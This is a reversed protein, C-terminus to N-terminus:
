TGDSKDANKLMTRLEQINGAERIALLSLRLSLLDSNYFGHNVMINFVACEVDHCKRWEIDRCQESCYMAYICYKCPITAWCIKLCNSCHTMANEQALLMSYPKEVVLVEGTDINRTAVIHRGNNKDYKLAIADSACPIEKNYSRIVPLSPESEQLKVSNSQINKQETKRRLGDLKTQLKLKNHNLEMKNIWHETEEIMSKATQDGLIILCHTKRMYLKGKLDDPYSLALARDIDQICESYLGLDFLVASRNAYALALQKSKHPALAISKTYLGLTFHCMASNFNCSAFAKNGEERLRESEEASKSKNIVHPIFDNEEMVNLTFKVRDEDTELKHFNNTVDYYKDAKVLKILLKSAFDEAKSKPLM